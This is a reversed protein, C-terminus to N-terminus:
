ENVLKTTDISSSYEPLLLLNDHFSEIQDLSKVGPNQTHCARDYFQEPAEYPNNLFISYIDFPDIGKSRDLFDKAADIEDQIQQSDKTFEDIEKQLADSELTTKINIAEIAVNIVKLLTQATTLGTSGGSGYYSAVAYVLIAAIQADENDGAAVLLEKLVLSLAYQILLQEAIAWLGASVTTATGWSSILLVISVAQLVFSLFNNFRETEYWDLHTYESAYLTMTAAEYILAEKEKYTFGSFMTFSMPVIFSSQDAAVDTLEVINVKFAGTTTLLLTTMFLGYVTLESYHTADYQWRFHAYSNVGGGTGDVPDYADNALIVFETEYTGVAGINGVVLTQTIYNFILSINYNEEEVSITNFVPDGDVPVSNYDAQKISAHLFLNYWMVYLTRKGVYSTTYLNIAFLIFADSIFDIYDTNDEVGAVMDDFGIGVLKLIKKSTVYSAHASTISVFNERLPVIPLMLTNDVGTDAGGDLSPYTGLSREYLWYINEGPASDLEFTINYFVNHGNDPILYGLTDTVEYSSTIRASYTTFIIAPNTGNITGVVPTNITARHTRFVLHVPDTDLNYETTITRVLYITFEGTVGDETFFDYTWDIGAKVIIGDTENYNENEQLYYKVWVEPIPASLIGVIVTTPESYLIDLVDKVAALNVEKFAAITTPLGLIYTNEGYSQYRAISTVANNLLAFKINDVIDGPTAIARMIAITISNQQPDPILRQTSVQTTYVDEDTFNFIGFIFELIPMVIGDWAQKISNYEADKLQRIADVKKNHLDEIADIIDGM